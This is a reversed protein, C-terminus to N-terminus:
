PVGAIAGFRTRDHVKAVQLLQWVHSATVVAMARARAVVTVEEEGDNSEIEDVGGEIAQGMARVMPERSCLAGMTM